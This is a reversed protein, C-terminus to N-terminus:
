IKIDRSAGLMTPRRIRNGPYASSIKKLSDTDRHRLAEVDRDQHGWKQTEPEPDGDTMERNKSRVKETKM